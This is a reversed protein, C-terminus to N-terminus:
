ASGAPVVPHSSRLHVLFPESQFCCARLQLRANSGPNGSPWDVRGGCRSRSSSAIFGHKPFSCTLPYRFSAVVEALVTRMAVLSVSPPWALSSSICFDWLTSAARPSNRYRSHMLHTSPLSQSPFPTLFCNPPSLSWRTLM